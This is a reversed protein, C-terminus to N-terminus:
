PAILGSWIWIQSRLQFVRGAPRIPSFELHSKWFYFSCMGTNAETSETKRIPPEIVINDKRRTTNNWYWEIRQHTQPSTWPTNFFLADIYNWLASIPAPISRALLFDLVFKSNVSDVNSWKISLILVRGQNWIIRKLYTLLMKCHWPVSRQGNTSLIYM